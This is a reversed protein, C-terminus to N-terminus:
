KKRPSPAQHALNTVVAIGVVTAAMVVMQVIRGVETQFEMQSIWYLVVGLTTNMGVTKGPSLVKLLKDM